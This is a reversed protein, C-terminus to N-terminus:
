PTARAGAKVLAQRSVGTVREIQQWTYGRSRLEAVVEGRWAVLQARRAALQELEEGQERIQRYLHSDDFRSWQISM